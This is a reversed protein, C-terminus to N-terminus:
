RIGQIKYPEGFTTLLPPSDRASKATLAKADANKLHNSTALFWNDRDSPKARSSALWTDRATLEGPLNINPYVKSWLDFDSQRLKIISGKFAYPGKAVVADATKVEEKKEERRNGERGKLGTNADIMSAEIPEIYDDKDTEEISGAEFAKKAALAARAKKMKENHSRRKNDAETAKEAIVTHYLKGDSCLVFGRLAAERVAKWGEIDRGFGALSALLRDDNPLSSAPVQHWAACWLMVAARFEEGSTLIAIDSDRLRLVDLPMYTFDRLDLEAYVPPAPYTM